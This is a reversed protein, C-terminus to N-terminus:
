AGYESDQESSVLIQNLRYNEEETFGLLKIEKQCMIQSQQNEKAAFPETESKRSFFRKLTQYIASNIKQASDKTVTM